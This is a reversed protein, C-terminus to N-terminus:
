ELVRQDVVRRAKFEQAPNYIQSVPVLAVEPTVETAEHVRRALEPATLQAWTAEDHGPDLGVEVRLVDPSLADGEVASTVVLRYELVGPMEMVVQHVVQPNLLTGKVKILDSTRTVHASGSSVLIAEGQWGTEPCPEHTISTLDGMAYRLLPMGRRNLHTLLLLGVEGDPLPEHTDPDVVELLVQDPATSYMPGGAVAPVWGTGSETCAYSSSFHVDRAGCAELSTRLHELMRSTMVEGSTQVIKVSSFDSGTAAADQAMRRLFSGIGMIGVPRVSEILEPVHAAPRHIDFEPYPLGTFASTVYVGAAMMLWPGFTSVHPLPSVPFLSLVTDGPTLGNCKAVRRGSELCGFFDHATYEYKTPVGTSTGTTFVTAYTLDYLGADPLRLRFSDPDGMLEAKTTIPLRELDATTRISGPDIRLEAFRRQYHPSASSIWSIQRRLLEDRRARLREPEWFMPDDEDYRPISANFAAVKQPTPHPFPRETPM